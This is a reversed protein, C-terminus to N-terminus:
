AESRRWRSEKKRENRTLKIGAQGIASLPVRGPRNGLEVSNMSMQRIQPAQTPAQQGAGGSSPNQSNPARTMLSTGQPMGSMAGGTIWPMAAGGHSPWPQPPMPAFGYPGAPGQPAPAPAPQQPQQQQQSNWENWEAPSWEKEAEM